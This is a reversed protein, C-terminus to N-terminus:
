MYKLIAGARDGGAMSRGGSSLLDNINSNEIMIALNNLVQEEQPTPAASTAQIQAQLTSVKNKTREIDVPTSIGAEATLTALQDLAGKASQLTDDIIESAPRTLAPASEVMLNIPGVTSGTSENRLTLTAAGTPLNPILVFITQQSDNQPRVFAPVEIQTGDVSSRFTAVNGLVSAPNFGTAAIQMMTGPPGSFGDDLGDLEHRSSRGSTSVMVSSDLQVQPVPDSIVMDGDPAVSATNVVVLEDMGDGDADPAITYNVVAQGPQVRNGFGASAVGIPKSFSASSQIEQAGLFTVGMADWDFGNAETVEQQSKETVTVTTGDPVGDPPITIVSGIESALVGGASGVAASSPPNPVVNVTVSKSTEGAPGTATASLQLTGEPFNSANLFVQFGDEATSDTGLNTSGAMFTVSSVTALNTAQVAFYMAGSITGGNIPNIIEFAPPGPPVTLVPLYLTHTGVEHAEASTTSMLDLSQINSIHIRMLPTLPYLILGVIVMFSMISYKLGHKM